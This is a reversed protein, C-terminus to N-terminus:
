KGRIEYFQNMCSRVLSGELTLEPSFLVPQILGDVLKQSVRLKITANGTTNTPWNAEILDFAFTDGQCAAPRAAAWRNFRETILAENTDGHADKLYEEHSHVPWSSFKRRIIQGAQIKESRPGIGSAICWPYTGVELGMWNTSEQMRLQRFECDVAVSIENTTANRIWCHVLGNAKDLIAAMQFGDMAEGWRLKDENAAGSQQAIASAIFLRGSLVLALCLLLKINMATIVTANRGFYGLDARM